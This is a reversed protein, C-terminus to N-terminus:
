KKVTIKRVIIGKVLNEDDDPVNFDSYILLANYDDIELLGTYYCSKQGEKDDSPFLKVTIPEDWELGSPDATARIKLYPRGYSAITVGCGLSVIHPFVGIEDFVVPKSWTKCNDTSRALYCPNSSGTRILMVVSGDPMKSMFPETFGEFMWHKSYTDDDILLQSTYDWTRGCDASRFVYVGSKGCYKYIADEKSSAESDFGSAYLVFYLDGDIAIPGSCNCLAFLMTVPYVYNNDEGYKCRRLPMYPWNVKVEFQTTKGTEPDYEKAYVKTDECNEFDEAFYTEKNYNLVNDLKEWYDVRHASKEVFGKFYKGNKMKIGLIETEELKIVPKWNEGGDKSVANVPIKGGSLDAYTIDDKAYNWAALIDGSLTRKFKPFQYLGWEKENPKGKILIKPDGIKLNVKKM